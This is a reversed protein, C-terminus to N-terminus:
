ERRGTEARSRNRKTSEYTDIEREDAYFGGPLKDVTISETPGMSRRQEAATSGGHGLPVNVPM